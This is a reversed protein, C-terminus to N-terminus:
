IKLQTVSPQHPLGPPHPDAAEDGGRATDSDIGLARPDERGAWEEQATVWRRAETGTTGQRTFAMRRPSIERAMDEMDMTSLRPHSTIQVIPITIMLSQYSDPIVMITLVAVEGEVTVAVEVEGTVQGTDAMEVRIMAEGSSDATPCRRLTPGRTIDRVDKEKVEEEGSM